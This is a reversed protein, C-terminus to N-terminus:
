INKNVLRQAVCLFVFGTSILVFCISLFIWDLIQCNYLFKHCITDTMKWQSCWLHLLTTLFGGFACYKSLQFRKSTFDAIHYCVLMELFFFIRKPVFHFMVHPYLLKKFLLFINFFIDSFTILKLTKVLKM